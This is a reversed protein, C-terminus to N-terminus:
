KKRKKKTGDGEDSTVEFVELPSEFQIGVDYGGRAEEVRRVRGWISEPSVKDAADQFQILCRVGPAMPEPVHILMGGRSLNVTTGSLSLGTIKAGQIRLEAELEMPVQVEARPFARRSEGGAPKDAASSKVM